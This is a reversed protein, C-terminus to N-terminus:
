VRKARRSSDAQILVGDTMERPLTTTKEYTQILM